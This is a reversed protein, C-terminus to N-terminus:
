NRLRFIAFKPIKQHVLWFNKKKAKATELPLPELFDILTFGASRIDAVLQGLPRHYFTVPIENFLTEHIPRATLYDGHIEANDRGQLEYSLRYSVRDGDRTKEMGWKIPHHTSFLFEGGPVLTNRIRTLIDTWTPAYHLTLSSYIFDFSDVPYTIDEMACVEFHIEPYTARAIEILGSSADIGVVERAGRKKMEACEEGSGCGVCLVRLGTLDPLANYMAPKELYEHSINEKERQKQAWLAARKTYSDDSM